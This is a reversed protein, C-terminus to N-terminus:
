IADPKTDLPVSKTTPIKKFVLYVSLLLIIIFVFIAIFMNGSFTLAMSGFIV